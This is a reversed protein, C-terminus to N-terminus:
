RANLLHTHRSVWRQTQAPFLTSLYDYQPQLDKYLKAHLQQPIPASVGPFIIQDVAPLQETRQVGIWELIDALAAQPNDNIDDFLVMKLKDHGVLSKWNALHKAYNSYNLFPYLEYDNQHFTELDINLKDYNIHMRIHSWAREVPDRLLALIKINPNISLAHKIGPAPLSLYSPSIEGCIDQAHAYQFIKRYWSDDQPLSTIHELQPLLQKLYIGGEATSSLNNTIQNVQERRYDHAWAQVKPMSQESFYHLEKIASLFVGQTLSLANYLWSTAAKQAGICIFDPRGSM